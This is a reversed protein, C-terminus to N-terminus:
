DKRYLVGWNDWLEKRSTRSLLTQETQMFVHSASIGDVEEALVRNCINGTCRDPIFAVLYTDQKGFYKPDELFETYERACANEIPRNSARLLLESFYLCEERGPKGHNHRIVDTESFGRGQMLKKYEDPLVAADGSRLRYLADRLNSLKKQPIETEDAYTHDDAFFVFNVDKGVAQAHSAVQVGLELSYMSFEGWKTFAEVARIPTYILPFHGSLIVVRKKPTSEVDGLLKELLNNETDVLEM